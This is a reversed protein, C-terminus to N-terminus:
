YNIDDDPAIVNWTGGTRDGTAALNIEWHGDGPSGTDNTILPPGAQAFAVHPLCSCAVLM